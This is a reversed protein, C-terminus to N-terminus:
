TYKRGYGEICLVSADEGNKWGVIGWSRVYWGAVAGLGLLSVKCAIEHGVRWRAAKVISDWRDQYAKADNVRPFDENPVDCQLFECLPQWGDGPSYELLNEKPVLEKVLSNHEEYVRKGDREFNKGYVGFVMARLMPMWSGVLGPDIWQLLTLTPSRVIPIITSKISSFWPDTPRKTLIFKADPYLGFFEKAFASAPFDTVAEFNGILKSWEDGIMPNETGFFKGSLARTWEAHHHPLQKSGLLEYSRLSSDSCKYGLRQLAIWMSTSGTRLQGVLIVKPGAQKLHTDSLSQNRAVPSM